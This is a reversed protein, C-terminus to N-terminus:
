YNDRGGERKSERGSEGTERERQFDADGQGFRKLQGEAKALCELKIGKHNPNPAGAEVQEPQGRMGLGQAQRICVESFGRRM